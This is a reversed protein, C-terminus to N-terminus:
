VKVADYSYTRPCFADRVGTVVGSGKEIIQRRKVIIVAVLVLSALTLFIALVVRGASSGSKGTSTDAKSWSCTEIQDHTLSALTHGKLHEPSHCKARDIDVKGKGNGNWWYYFDIMDCDCVLPNDAVRLESFDDNLDLQELFDRTVTHLQNHSLDFERLYRCPEEIQEEDLWGYTHEHCTANYLERTSLISNNKLSIHRLSPLSQFVAADVFKLSNRELFLKQLLYLESGEFVTRLNQVQVETPRISSTSFAFNLHLEKLVFFSSFIRPYEEKVEWENDNLVLVELMPMTHFAKGSIKEISNNSLDLKILEWFSKHAINELINPELKPMMNGTFSLEHLNKYLNSMKVFSKLYSTSSEPSYGNNDCSIYVVPKQGDRCICESLWQYEDQKVLENYSRDCTFNGEGKVSEVLLVTFCFTFLKLIM